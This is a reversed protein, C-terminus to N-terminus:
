NASPNTLARLFILTHLTESIGSRTVTLSVQVRQINALNGGSVVGSLLLSSGAEDLFDLALASVNGTLLDTNTGDVNIRLQTGTLDILRGTGWQLETSGAATIDPVVGSGNDSATIERVERVIRDLAVSVELHLQDHVSRDRFSVGIRGVLLAASSAIISLVVMAAITEILTFARTRRRSM